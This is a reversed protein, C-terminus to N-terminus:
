WGHYYSCELGGLSDMKELVANAIGTEIEMVKEYSVALDLGPLKEVLTKSRTIKHVDLALGVNLPSEFHQRFAGNSNITNYSVQRNSRYARVFHQALM